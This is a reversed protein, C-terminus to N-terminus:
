DALDVVLGVAFAELTAERCGMPLASHPVAVAVPSPLQAVVVSTETVM